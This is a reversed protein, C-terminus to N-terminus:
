VRTKIIWRKNKVDSFGRYREGTLTDIGIDVLPLLRSVILQLNYTNINFHELLAEDIIEEDADIEDIDLGTIVCALEEVDYTRVEVKEVKKTQKKM